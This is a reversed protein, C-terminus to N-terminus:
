IDALVSCLIYKKRNLRFSTLYKFTDDKKLMWFSSKKEYLEKITKNWRGGWGRKIKGSLTIISVSCFLYYTLQLKFFGNM